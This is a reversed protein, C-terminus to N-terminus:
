LATRVAGLRGRWWAIRHEDTLAYQKLLAPDPSAPMPAVPLYGDVPVLSRPGAVVDGTLLSRTGLGCAFRLEPLAGALALGSALGISTELASSVVCPLGCAEAVRLARRVGGLPGCTLVAVDAADALSMRVPNEAHRISEDAAIRVDIKRRVAALEDLTPCPQEVYELEGAAKALAAIAAVAADVTWMANADCRIAGRPGLADRVAEVRAVDQALSGARNAVVVDAAPCGSEAAIAYARDPDVAPVTVAVPIRGRLPDPWGVTGGEIAATLWRAAERDDSSDFPSFEGWGQPGEILMGERVRVGGFEGVMPIGFVPADDFDILTNM